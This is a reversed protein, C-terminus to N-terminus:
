KPRSAHRLVERLAQMTHLVKTKLLKAREGKKKRGKFLQVIADKTVKLSMEKKKSVINIKAAIKGSFSKVNTYKM